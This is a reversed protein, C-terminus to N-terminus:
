LYEWKFWWATKRNWKCCKSINQISIWTKRGAISISEWNKIFESDQTLQKIQKSCPIIKWTSPPNRKFHNNETSKNLWTRYAHLMNESRTCWELNEVRNDDRKGNKHNIHPKNEPNPIFGQAVLRHITKSKWGISVIKYWLRLWPSLIKEVKTKNFNLSKVNWLNSAEYKWEYGVVPKWIEKKALRQERYWQKWQLKGM